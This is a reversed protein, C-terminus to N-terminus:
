RWSHRRSTVAGSTVRPDIQAIVSVFNSAYRSVWLIRLPSGYRGVCRPCLDASIEDREGNKCFVTQAILCSRFVDGDKSNDRPFLKLVENVATVQVKAHTGRWDRDAVDDAVLEVTALVARLEAVERELEAVKNVWLQAAEERARKIDLEHQIKAASRAREAHEAETLEAMHFTM